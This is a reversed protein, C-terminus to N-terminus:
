AVGRFLRNFSRNVARGGEFVLVFPLTLVALALCLLLVLALWVLELAKIALTFLFDGRM